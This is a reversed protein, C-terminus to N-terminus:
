PTSQRILWLETVYHRQRWNLKSEDVRDWTLELRGDALAEVGGIEAAGDDLHQAGATVERM